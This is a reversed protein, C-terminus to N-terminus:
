THALPDDTALGKAHAAALLTRDSSVFIIAEGLNVIAQQASALQIADLARLPHREVLVRARALVDRDLPVTVYEVDAHSLFTNGLAPLDAAPLSGERVRRNLLSFMEVSTVDTIITVNGSATDLM